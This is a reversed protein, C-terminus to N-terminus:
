VVWELGTINSDGFERVSQALFLRQRQTLMRLPRDSNVVGARMLLRNVRAHGIRPIATLLHRIRMGELDGADGNALVDAVLAAAEGTTGTRCDYKFQAMAIRIRNAKELAAHRQMIAQEPTMM